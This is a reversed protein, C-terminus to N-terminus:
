SDQIGAQNQLQKFRKEFMGFAPWNKGNPFNDLNWQRCKDKAIALQLVAEAQPEIVEVLKQVKSEGTALTFIPGLPYNDILIKFGQDTKAATTRM